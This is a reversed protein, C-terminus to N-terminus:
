PTFWLAPRDPLDGSLSGNGLKLIHRKKLEAKEIDDAFHQYFLADFSGNQIMIEVGDRLRKAIRPYKASVFIYSPGPIYLAINPAIVVNKLVDKRQDLEDFVENVGRPLFNFRHSDLMRFLGNYDTGKKVKFGLNEMVSTTSWGFLLGATLEKLENVTSIKEFISLDDKHILLLRYSLLGKRVPIKIAITEKEWDSNTLAIFVNVLKGGTRLQKRAQLANMIPADTTFEYPGYLDITHELALRILEEKYNNRIDLTSQGKEYRIHDIAFLCPSFFTVILILSCFTIKM